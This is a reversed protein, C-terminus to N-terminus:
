RWRQSKTIKRANKLAEIKNRYSEFPMDVVMLSKNVGMRVSKSHEIM